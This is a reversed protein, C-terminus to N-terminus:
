EYENYFTLLREKEGLLIKDHIIVTGWNHNGEILEVGDESIAIDWGISKNQPHLLAAKKVVAKCEEWYPIKFGKIVEKTLPHQKEPAKRIDHYIGDSELIGTELNVVAAFGGHSVNDVNGNVSIRLQANFIEVVNNKHLLTVIRITNVANPALISIRSHQIFYQEVLHVKSKKMEKILKESNYDNIDIVKISNGCSGFADKLIIKGTVNLKFNDFANPDEELQKISVWKRTIFENYNELFKVKNNLIERNKKPNIRLFFQYMFGTYAYADKEQKTKYYLDYSLFDIFSAGLILSDLFMRWRIKNPSVNCKESYFHILENLNSWNTTFLFYGFYVFHNLKM